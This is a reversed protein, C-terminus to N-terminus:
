WRNRTRSEGPLDVLAGRKDRGQPRERERERERETASEGKELSGRQRGVELLNISRNYVESIIPLM